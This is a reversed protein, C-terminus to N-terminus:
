SPPSATTCASFAHHHAHAAITMYEREVDQLTADQMMWFAAKPHTVWGHLLEADQSRPGLPRFTFRASIGTRTSM